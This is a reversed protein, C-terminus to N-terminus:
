QPLIIAHIKIHKEAAAQFVLDKHIKGKPRPHPPADGILIIIKAEAEWSFGTIGEYLAEYVAEPIDGGEGVQVAQLSKKFTEIDRTFPIRKTLYLSRTYDEYLVMGVRFASFEAAMGQLLTPVSRKIATIDNRMSGTTDLCIVVDLAKRREKELIGRIKDVIDEPERSWLLDGQTTTIIEAFANITERMYNRDPPGELPKQVVELIFPNDLFEGRYDAYPLAFSRINFYTGDQVYIEGHRTYEYGYYLIYPIYIHFVEGLEPHNEPTSDILSWVRSTKTIPVENILRIEDGNVPNWDPTRYAYNPERLAPDRTTETLLVSAIGPKKRIFLHFGGDAGQEIRLDEQTISLDRNRLFTEPLAPRDLPTDQGYGQAGALALSVLVFAGLNRM